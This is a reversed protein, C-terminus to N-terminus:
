HKTVVHKPGRPNDEPILFVIDFLKKFLNKHRIIAWAPRFMYYSFVAKTTNVTYKIVFEKIIGDIYLM